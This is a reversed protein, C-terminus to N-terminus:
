QLTFGIWRGFAVVSIWLVLSVAGAAKAKLPSGRDASWRRSIVPLFGRPPARPPPPPKPGAKGGGGICSFDGHQFGGPGAPGDKGSFLLQPRLHDCEFLVDLRRDGGRGRLSGWTYPLVDGMLRAVPRDLWALGILRLDVISITGVVLVIALVHVSEIWPFVVNSEAIAEAIPTAQLWELFQDFGM